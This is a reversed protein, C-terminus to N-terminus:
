GPYAPSGAVGTHLTWAGNLNSELALQGHALGAAMPVAPGAATISQTGQYTALPDSSSGNVPVEYLIPRTPPGSLVILDNADYWTLKRPHPVNTGITVVSRGLHPSGGPYQNIAALLLQSRRAGPDHVIMAVRVGDPAVRLQRVVAGTQLNLGPVITQGGPRLISVSGPSAVWLEDRADWSLSTVGAGHPWRALRAGRQLPGYYVVKRSPSVGAVYKGDPSVAITTLHVRGEGAEGPVSHVAFAPPTTEQVAGTANVSYFPTRSGAEPVSLGGPSQHVQGGSLSASRRLHGNIELQVSQVASQGNSPGALTWALQSTMDSLSAQSARAASGGLDITATGDNLAVRRLKAGRPFATSVGGALWGKPKQLLATVLEYALNASSAQLPVFVPDPVLARAAGAVYYLNRPAYVHKFDLETLLLRSPPNEIVWRGAIKSLQFKYIKSGTTGVYQGTSTLTALKEGSAKVQKTQSSIGGAQHAPVIPPQTVKLAGGVVTVAWAPNWNERVSPDLYARAVAHNNAFSACATLFGLVVQEPSWRAKPLMPILQLYDQSQGATTLAVKGAQVSGSDPVTACASLLLAVLGAAAAGRWRGPVLGRWSSPGGSPVRLWPLLARSSARCRWSLPERRRLAPPAPRAGDPM